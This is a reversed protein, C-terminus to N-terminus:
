ALDMCHASSRVGSERGVTTQIGSLWTNNNKGKTNDKCSLTVIFIVGKGLGQDAKTQNQDVM